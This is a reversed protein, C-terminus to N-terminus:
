TKCGKPRWPMSHLESRIPYAHLIAGM